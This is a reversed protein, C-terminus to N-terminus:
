LVLVRAILLREGAREVADARREGVEVSSWVVLADGRRTRGDAYVKWAFEKYDEGEVEAVGGLLLARWEFIARVM